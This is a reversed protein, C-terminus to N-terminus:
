LSKLSIATTFSISFYIASISRFSDLLIDVKFLFYVSPWTVDINILEM